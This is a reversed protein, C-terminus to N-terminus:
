KKGLEFAQAWEADTQDTLQINKQMRHFLDPAVAIYGQDAMM